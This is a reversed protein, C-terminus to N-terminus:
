GFMIWKPNIILLAGILLIVIGGVLTAYRSYKGHAGVAKMTMMAIAFIIMDDLMFVVVYLLLYLYYQTNALSALSLAETYIAPLGFSCFLEIVNVIAAIGIIGVLALFLSNKRVVNKIREMIKQRQEPNTVDCTLTRMKWFRKLYYAGIGLAVIGILTQMWRVAGVFKFFNFWAALFVFYVAASAVIFSLGLIWMRRRNQMGLLITILFILVWMACPNFGDAAGLVVTLGFLSYHTLDVEGAFPLDVVLSQPEDIIGEDERAEEIPTEGAILLRPDVCEADLCTDILSVLQAGTTDETGFGVIVQNGIFTAPVGTILQDVHSIFEQFLVQGEKDNTVEYRHIAIQEGYQKELSDLFTGAHSCHPCTDSYFFYVEVPKAADTSIPIFTVFFLVLLFVITFRYLRLKNM